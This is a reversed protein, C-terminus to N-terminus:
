CHPSANEISVTLRMSM